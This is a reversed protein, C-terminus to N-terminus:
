EQKIANGSKVVSEAEKLDREKTPTKEDQSLEDDVVSLRGQIPPKGRGTLDRVIGGFTRVM